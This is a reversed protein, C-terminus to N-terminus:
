KRANRWIEEVQPLVSNIDRDIDKIKEELVTFPQIAPHLRNKEDKKPTGDKDLRYGYVWGDLLRETSWRDHEAEALLELLRGPENEMEEKCITKIYEIMRSKFLAHSASQRNSERGWEPEKAWAEELEATNLSKKLVNKYYAYLVSRGMNDITEGLLNENPALLCSTSLPLFMSIRYKEFSQQMKESLRETEPLAFVIRTGSGQTIRALFMAAEAGLLENALCVYIVTSEDINPIKTSIAQENMRQIDGQIFHLKALPAYGGYRQDGENAPDVAPYRKYFRERNLDAQCDVIHIILKQNLCKPTQCMRILQLTIREALWGFGVIAVHYPKTKGEAMDPSFKEVIIKAAQDYASFPYCVWPTKTNESISAHSFPGGEEWTLRRLTSDHVQIRAVFSENKFGHWYRWFRNWLTIKKNQFYEKLRIASDVNITDDGTMAYFAVARHLGLTNLFKIDTADGVLTFGHRREIQVLYPNTADKDIAIITHNRDLLEKALAFGKEGIGFVIVHKCFIYKIAFWTFYHVFFKACVEIIAWALCLPLILRAFQFSWNDYGYINSMQGKAIQFIAIFKDIPYYEGHEGRQPFYVVLLVCSVLGLIALVWRVLRLPKRFICFIKPILKM